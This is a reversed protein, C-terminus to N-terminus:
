LYPCCLNRRRGFEREFRRGLVRSSRRRSRTRDEGLVLDSKLVGGNNTHGPSRRSLSVLRMSSRGLGGLGRYNGVRGIPDGVGREVFCIGGFCQGWM